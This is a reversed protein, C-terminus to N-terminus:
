RGQAVAVAVLTHAPLMLDMEVLTDKYQRHLHHIEQAAQALTGVVVVVLVV